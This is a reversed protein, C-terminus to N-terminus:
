VPVYYWRDSIAEAMTSHMWASSNHGGIAILWDSGNSCFVTLCVELGLVIDQKPNPPVGEFAPKESEDATYVQNCSGDDGARLTPRSSPISEDDGSKAVQRKSKSIRVIVLDEELTTAGEHSPEQRKRRVGTRTSVPLAVPFLERDIIRSTRLKKVIRRHKSEEQRAGRSKRAANIPLSLDEDETHSGGVSTESSQQRHRALRPKAVTLEEDEDSDDM